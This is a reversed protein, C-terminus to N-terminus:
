FEHVLLLGAYASFPTGIEPHARGQVEAGVKVGLLTLPTYEVFVKATQGSRTDYGLGIGVRGSHELSFLAPPKESALIRTEGKDNTVSLVDYGGKSKPLTATSTVHQSPDSKIEDPVKLKKLSDHKIAKIGAPLAVTEVPLKKAKPIPSAQKYGGVGPASRDSSLFHIGVLLVFVGIVAAIYKHYLSM